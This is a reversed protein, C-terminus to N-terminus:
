RREFFGRLAAIEQQEGAVDRALREYLESINMWIARAAPDDAAFEAIERMEAVWRYAKPFMGPVRRSMAALLAPDSESLERYLAEASGARTAALIMAAVVAVHGKSIGAFAMKLASAAGVPGDLRRVDLGYQALVQVRDAHEGSVYLHPGASSGPVPPSGILSGDVFDAGAAGIVAQIHRVTTPNVANCDVFVPPRRASKLAFATQEAFALANAPPVISLLLDVDALAEASVAVMGAQQARERTEASRGELLTVVRVGHEVLRRAVGAGMSGAAVIAVEPKM